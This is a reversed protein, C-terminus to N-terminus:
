LCGTTDDIYTGDLTTFPRRYGSAYNRFFTHYISNGHTNDSDINFSRNGEFLM